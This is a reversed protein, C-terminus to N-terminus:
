LVQVLKGPDPQISNVKGHTVTNWWSRARLKLLALKVPLYSEQNIELAQDYFRKALHFDQEAGIGNEHMWGLNWLAQASQPVEAAAQYCSVAKELDVEVGYGKLYYDGMKVASDINSQKASRTWYILALAANRFLASAKTKWPLLSHISVISKHEDLLYAVNAQAQEYGQEAAMMYNILATEMDGDEYAKNAEEFASHLAEAKEAVVKYYATALPCSRERGIGFNSIEALHYVAEIHGYRHAAEFYTMATKLDGQDLFLKGLNIQSAAWDQNASEKFYGAALMIDKPVGLGHLHMLGMEYQCYADGNKLGLRFWRLAKKFDQTVGEGRLHLRGIYAAAKAAVKGLGINDDSIIKDNKDWYQRAVTMFYRRATKFNRKMARSGDYNLRGLSFTAKVDGKRSMLDLYEMVDDFDANQDSNPGGKAANAGASSFSAGEGYVGGHDDAIRYAERVLPLGGPPGSRGYEIAKDAVKKYWVVAENCNRPTGIGSHHRYAITMESRTNGAKAAFTHYMMARAQDRNVVNGFGTAYMFGLMYQATSNGDLGALENYRDFARKYNRPHTYNGYFNMEALLYLADPNHQKAAGELLAVARSLPKSLKKPEMDATLYDDNSPGNM